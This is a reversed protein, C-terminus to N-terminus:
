SIMTSTHLKKECLFLTAEKANSSFKMERPHGRKKKVSQYRQHTQLQTSPPNTSSRAPCLPHLQHAKTQRLLCFSQHSLLLALIKCLRARKQWKCKRNNVKAALHCKQVVGPILSTVCSTKICVSDLVLYNEYMHFPTERKIQM